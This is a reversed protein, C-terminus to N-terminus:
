TLIYCGKKIMVRALRVHMIYRTTYTKSICTRTSRKECRAYATIWQISIKRQDLSPFSLIHVSFGQSVGIDCPM